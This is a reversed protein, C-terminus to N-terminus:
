HDYSIKKVSELVLKAKFAELDIVNKPLDAAKKEADEQEKKIKEIIEKFQKENVIIRGNSIKRAVPKGDKIAAGEPWDTVWEGDVAFDEKKLELDDDKTKGERKLYEEFGKKREYM